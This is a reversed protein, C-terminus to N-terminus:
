IVDKFILLSYVIFFDLEERIVYFNWYDYYRLFNDCNKVVDVIEVDSKFKFKKNKMLKSVNKIYNEDGEIIWWCDVDVM